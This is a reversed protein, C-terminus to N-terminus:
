KIFLNLAQMVFVDGFYIELQLTVYKYINIVRMKNIIQGHRRIKIVYKLFFHVSCFILRNHRSCPVFGYNYM